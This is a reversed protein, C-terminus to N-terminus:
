EARASAILETKECRLIRCIAGFLKASPQRKGSELRYITSSHVPRGLDQALLAALVTGSLERDERFERLKDGDIVASRM